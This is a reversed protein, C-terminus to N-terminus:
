ELRIVVRRNAARAAKLTDGKLGNLSVKPRTQAYARISMRSEGVGRSKFDGLLAIGRAASLEWNSRYKMGSIPVDDTHGEFILKYDPPAEALVKMIENVVPATKPDPTSSGPSFLSKDKFEVALGNVDYNVEAVKELNKAKIVRRVKDSITQLNEPKKDDSKKIASSLNDYKRRDPSSFALQLIFFSMLILSMDSFSMLWLGEGKKVKSKRKFLPPPPHTGGSEDDGDQGSKDPKNQSSMAM